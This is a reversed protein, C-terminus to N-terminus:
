TYKLRLGILLLTDAAEKNVLRLGVYDNAALSSLLGSVDLAYIQNATM